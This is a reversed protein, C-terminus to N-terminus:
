SDKRPRRTVSSPRRRGRRPVTNLVYTRGRSESRYESPNRFRVVAAEVQEQRDTYAILENLTLNDWEPHETLKM